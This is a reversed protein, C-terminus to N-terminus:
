SRHERRGGQPPPGLVDLRHRAVGEGPKLFAQLIQARASVGWRECASRVERRLADSSWLAVSRPLRERSVGAGPRALDGSPIINSASRAAFRRAM